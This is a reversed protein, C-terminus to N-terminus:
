RRFLRFGRSRSSSPCVGGPCGSSSEQYTVTSPKRSPRVAYQWKVRGEHDDSHLSQIEAYSLSQLWAHDFKGAHEGVTLHRWNPCGTWYGRRTPYGSRVAKSEALQGESLKLIEAPKAPSRAAAPEPAAMFFAALDAGRAPAALIVIIFLAKANM